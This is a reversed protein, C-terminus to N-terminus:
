GGGDALDIKFGNDSPLPETPRAKLLSTFDVAIPANTVKKWSRYKAIETITPDVEATV